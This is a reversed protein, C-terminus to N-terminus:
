RVSLPARIVESAPINAATVPGGKWIPEVADAGSEERGEAGAAAASAATVYEGEQMTGNPFYFVGHGMPKSDRFTGLWVTGDAWIWKGSTLAGKFWCGTLQSQDGAVLYTGTGHKIGQSWQGSYVDGNGYFYSGEGHFSDRAFFGAAAISRPIFLLFRPPIRSTDGRYRKVLGPGTGGAVGDEGHYRDGNPLSLKGVGEKHGEM